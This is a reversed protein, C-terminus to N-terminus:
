LGTTQNQVGANLSFSMVESSNWKAVLTGTMIIHGYNTWLEVNIQEMIQEYSLM